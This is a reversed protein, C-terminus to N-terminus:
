KTLDYLTSDAYGVDRRRGLFLRNFLMGLVILLLTLFFITERAEETAISALVVGIGAVLGIWIVNVLVSGRLLRRNNQRMLMEAHEDSTMPM